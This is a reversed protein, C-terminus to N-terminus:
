TQPESCPNGAFFMASFASALVLSRAPRVAAEPLQLWPSWRAKWLLLNVLFGTVFLFYLWNLVRGPLLGNVALAPVFFGSGM